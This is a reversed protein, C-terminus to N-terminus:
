ALYEAALYEATTRHAYDVTESEPGSVFVRRGLVAQIKEPLFLDLSRYNPIEATGEQDLLSIADADSILRAACIAGAPLRLEAASFVGGGSRARDADSERLMLTTSMEFLETRTAPWSGTQVAHWLM